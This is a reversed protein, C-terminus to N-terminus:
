CSKINVLAAQKLLLKTLREKKREKKREKQM